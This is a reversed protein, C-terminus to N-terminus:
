NNLGPQINIHMPPFEIFHVMANSDNLYALMDIEGEPEPNILIAPVPEVNEIHTDNIMVGPAKPTQSIIAISSIIVMAALMISSISFANKIFNDTNSM